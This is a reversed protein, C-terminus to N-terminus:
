GMRLDEIHAFLEDRKKYKKTLSLIKIVCSYAMQKLENFDSDPIASVRGHAVASRKAYLDKVRRKAEKREDLSKTFLFSVGEAISNSVSIASKEPDQSLLSELCIALSLFANEKRKQTQADALWHTAIIISEEIETLKEPPSQLLKLIKFAGRKRMLQITIKDLVFNKLPGLRTQNLHFNQKDSSIIYSDRVGHIIEGYLGINVNWGDPQTLPISFKIVDIISGLEIQAIEVAREPEAVVSLEFVSSNLPIRRLSSEMIKYYYNKDEESNKTGLILKKFDRLISKFFAEDVRKLKGSGLFIPKEPIELGIIPILVTNKTSFNEFESFMNSVAQRTITDEPVNLSNIFILDLKEKLFKESYKDRFGDKQLLNQVMKNYKEQQEISLVFNGETLILNGNKSKRSNSLIIEQGLEILRNAFARIKEPHFLNKRNTM